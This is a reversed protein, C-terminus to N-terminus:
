IASYLMTHQQQTTYALAYPKWHARNFVGHDVPITSPKTAPSWSTGAAVTNSIMSSFCTMIDYLLATAGAPRAHWDNLNQTEPPQAKTIDFDGMITTYDQVSASVPNIERSAITPFRVLCMVWISGHEPMFKRRFGIKHGAISKGGYTGLNADGTGNVDYGSISKTVRQILEPREDADINVGSKRM